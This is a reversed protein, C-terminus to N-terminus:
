TTAMDPNAFDTAVTCLTNRDQDVITTNCPNDREFYLSFLHSEAPGHFAPAHRHDHYPVPSINYHTLARGLHPHGDSSYCNFPSRHISRFVTKTHHRNLCRAPCTWISIAYKRQYRSIAGTQSPRHLWDPQWLRRGGVGPRAMRPGCQSPEGM